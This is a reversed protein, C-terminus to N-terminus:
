GNKYIGGVNLVDEHPYTNFSTIVLDVQGPQNAVNTLSLIAVGGISYASSLLQGNNSLAVLAGDVGVDVIFETQGVMISQEYVANLVEPQDTRILLTPDGFITWHNTENIGYSGQAENMHMCGNVSIGGYSRSINDEYSETLIANMAWQGHMPPEWSQSITSGLHGVSGTPNGDADTARMWAECFCEGYNNFETLQM